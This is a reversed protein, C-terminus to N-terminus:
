LGGDNSIAEMNHGPMLLEEILDLTTDACSVLLPKGNNYDGSDDTGLLSIVGVSNEYFMPYDVLPFPASRCLIGYRGNQSGVEGSPREGKGFPAGASLEVNPVSSMGDSFVVITRHQIGHPPVKWATIHLHALELFVRVM